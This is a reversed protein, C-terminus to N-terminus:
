GHRGRYWRDVPDPSNSLAHHKGRWAFSHHDPCTSPPVGYSLIAAMTIGSCLSPVASVVADNVKTATAAEDM